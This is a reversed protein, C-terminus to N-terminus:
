ALRKKNNKKWTSMSSSARKSRRNTLIHCDFKTLNTLIHCDLPCVVGRLRRGYGFGSGCGFITRISLGGNTETHTTIDILEPGNNRGINM